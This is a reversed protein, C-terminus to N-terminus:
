PVVAPTCLCSQPSSLSVASGGLCVGCAHGAPTPAAVAAAAATDCIVQMALLNPHQLDQMAALELVLAERRLAAATGPGMFHKLSVVKVALM